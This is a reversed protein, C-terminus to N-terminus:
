KTSLIEIQKQQTELQKSLAIIYLTLEEIKEQQIKALEGLGVQQNEVVKASPVGPLHGNQNIYQEVEKLSKLQYEKSFVYDAWNLEVMVEKARVSGNVALKYYNNQSSNTPTTAQTSFNNTGIGVNGGTSYTINSGSTTWQSSSIPQWTADGSTNSSTLVYSAQAGPIALRVTGNVDLKAAPTSQGIGVNGNVDVAMRQAGNTFMVITQNSMLNLVGADAKINLFGRRNALEVGNPDVHKIEFQPTVVGNFNNNISRFILADNSAWSNIPAVNFSVGTEEVKMKDFGNVNMQIYQNAALNLFGRRNAVDVGNPSVHAIEFQRYTNLNEPLWYNPFNNNVSRFLVTSNGAYPLIYGGYMALHGGELQLINGAVPTTTGIGVASTTTIPNTGTWQANVSVNLAIASLCLLIKRM